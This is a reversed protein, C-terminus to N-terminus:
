NLSLRSIGVVSFSSNAKITDQTSPKSNTFNVNAHKTVADASFTGLSPKTNMFEDLLM